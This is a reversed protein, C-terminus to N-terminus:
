FNPRQLNWTAYLADLQRQNDVFIHPLGSARALDRYKSVSNRTHWLWKIMSWKISDQQGELAGARNKQVTSRWVYRWFRRALIDTMVIAGTARAIRQPLLNSYNGEMVWGDALIAEDHLAAFDEDTRQKWNTNPLHKLQDLYIPEVGLKGAIARALTSKGSNTPGMIMIRRGLAELDPLRQQM